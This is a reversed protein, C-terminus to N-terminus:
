LFIAYNIVYLKFYLYIDHFIYVFTFTGFVAEFHVFHSIFSIIKRLDLFHSFKHVKNETNNDNVPGLPWWTVVSLSMGSRSITGAM